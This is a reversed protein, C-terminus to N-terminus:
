STYLSAIRNSSGGTVLDTHCTTHSPQPPKEAKILMLYDRQEQYTKNQENFNNIQVAILIGIVVLLIEGVAYILYKSFRNESLLKQRIKRFFKIM